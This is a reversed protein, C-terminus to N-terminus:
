VGPSRKYLLETLYWLIRALTGFRSGHCADRDPREFHGAVDIRGFRAMALGLPKASSDARRERGLKCSTGSLSPARM